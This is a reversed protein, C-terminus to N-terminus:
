RERREIQAGTVRLGGEVLFGVSKVDGSRVTYRLGLNLLAKLIVAANTILYRSEQVM